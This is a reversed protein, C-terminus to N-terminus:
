LEIWWPGGGHQYLRVRGDVNSTVLSWPFLGAEGYDTASRAEPDVVWVRAGIGVIRGDDLIEVTAFQDDTAWGHDPVVVMGYPGTRDRWGIITTGTADGVDRDPFEACIMWATRGLGLHHTPVGAGYQRWGFEIMRPVALTSTAGTAVDICAVAGNGVVVATGGHWRVTYTQPECAPVRVDGLLKATEIEYVALRSENQAYKVVAIWRGSSDIAGGYVSGEADIQARLEGARTMTLWSGFDKGRKHHLLVLARDAGGYATKFYCDGRPTHAPVDTSGHESHLLNTGHDYVGVGPLAAGADRTFRHRLESPPILVPGLRPSAVAPAPVDFPAGCCPECRVLLMPGSEALRATGRFWLTQTVDDVPVRVRLEMQLTRPEDIPAVRAVGSRMPDDGMSEETLADGSGHWWADDGFTTRAIYAYGNAGAFPGDDVVIAISSAGDEPEITVTATVKRVEDPDFAPEDDAVVVGSRGVEELITRVRQVYEHSVCIRRLFVLAPHDIALAKALTAMEDRWMTLTRIFGLHYHRELGYKSAPGALYADHESILANVRETLQTHEEMDTTTRLAAQLAILEGRPDGQEQLWDAYVLYPGPQDPDIAIAAELDRNRAIPEAYALEEEVAEDPECIDPGILPPAPEVTTQTEPPPQEPAPPPAPAFVGKIRSWIGV